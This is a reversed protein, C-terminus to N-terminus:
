DASQAAMDDWRFLEEKVSDQLDLDSYPAMAQQLESHDLLKKKKQQQLQKDPRWLVDSIVLSDRSRCKHLEGQETTGEWGILLSRARSLPNLKIGTMSFLHSAEDTQWLDALDTPFPKEM